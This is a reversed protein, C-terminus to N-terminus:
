SGWRVTGLAPPPCCPRLHPRPVGLLILTVGSAPPEQTQASHLWCHGWLRLFHATKESSMYSSLKSVRERQWSAKSPEAYHGQPGSDGHGM